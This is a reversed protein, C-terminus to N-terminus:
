NKEKWIPMQRMNTLLNVDIEETEQEINMKYLDFLDREEESLESLEHEELYELDDLTVDKNYDVLVTGSINEVNQEDLYSYYKNELRDLATNMAVYIGTSLTILLIIGFMQIKKRKLGKLANRFLLGM